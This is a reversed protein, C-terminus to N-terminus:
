EERFARRFYDALPRTLYDLPTRAATQAFAVAPMGPVLQRGELQSLSEESLRIRVRFHSNRTREDLFADASVHIIEGKIEQLSRASFAPFQLTVPQGPYVRDIDNAEIQAAVVLPQDQPVISMLKEAAGLVAGITNIELEHIVGSVPARIDLRGIRDETVQLQESLERQLGVLERLLTIAEEQRTSTLAIIELSVSAIREMAEARRSQLDGLYGTREAVERRLANLRASTALGMESLSTQSLLEERAIGIQTEVSAIQADIGAVLSRIQGQQQELQAIRQRHTLLRAQFLDTQGEVLEAIEPRRAAAQHLPEPFLVVDDGDREARLRGIQAFTEYYQTELIAFEAQLRRGDLQLLPQGKQVYDGETVFINRVIGGDVHQVVQSRQEVELSGTAIVAGSINAMMAWSGLGGLLLIMAVFGLVHPKRMSLELPPEAVHPRQPIRAPAVNDRLTLRGRQGTLGPASLDTMTPDSAPVSM